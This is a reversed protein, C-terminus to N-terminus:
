MGHGTFQRLGCRFVLHAATTMIIAWVGITLIDEIRPITALDTLLRVPVYLFYPFPTLALVRQLWGPFFALPILVGTLLNMALGVSYLIGRIQEMWFALCGLLYYFWFQLYAGGLFFALAWALHVVPIGNALTLVCLIPLAVILAISSTALVEALTLWWLRIPRALYVALQGTYITQAVTTAAVGFPILRAVALVVAYYLVINSAGLLRAHGSAALIASWLAVTVGLHIPYMALRLAVNGAHLRAGKFYLGFAVALPYGGGRMRKSPLAFAAWLRAPRGSSLGV